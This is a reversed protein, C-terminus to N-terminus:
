CRLSHLRHTISTIWGGKLPHAAPFQTDAITSETFCISAQFSKVYCMCNSIIRENKSISFEVKIEFQFWKFLPWLFWQLVCVSLFLITRGFFFFVTQTNWKFSVDTKSLLIFTHLYWWNEAQQGHLWDIGYPYIPMTKLEIGLLDLSTSSNTSLKLHTCFKLNGRGIRVISAAM